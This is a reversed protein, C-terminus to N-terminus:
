HHSITLEANQYNVRWDQATSLETCHQHYHAQRWIGLALDPHQPHESAQNILLHDGARAWCIQQRRSDVVGIVVDFAARIRSHCLEINLHKLLEQPKLLTDDRGSLLQRVLPNILTKLVLLSLLHKGAMANSLAMVFLGSDQPLRRYDIWLQHSDVDNFQHSFHYHGIDLTGVPMLDGNLQAAIADDQYLVDIHDDFEWFARECAQELSHRDVCNNIAHRLNDLSDLPKVLYDWAGLRVAERIHAMQESASMVIVPVEPLRKLLQELVQLGSIGPLMLDCLVVDPQQRQCLQLGAEGSAAHSVQFGNQSLYRCALDAFVADDEIVVIHIDSM